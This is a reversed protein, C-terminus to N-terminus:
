MLGAGELTKQQQKLQDLTVGSNLVLQILHHSLEDWGVKGGGASYKQELADHCQGKHAHVVDALDGDEMGPVTSMAATLQADNIREKCHDCIVVAGYRGTDYLIKIM